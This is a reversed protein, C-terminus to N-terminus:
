TVRGKILNEGGVQTKLFNNFKKNWRDPNNKKSWENFERTKQETLAELEEWPMIYEKDTKRIKISPHKYDTFKDDFWGRSKCQEYLKTGPYPQAIFFAASDFGAKKPFEFTQMMEEKTEGPMGVIFNSHVSIGYKQALTIVPKFIKLDVPKNIIQSLVRQSGSEPSFTLQYCGSEAMLKIMDKNLTSAMVGEPTSWVFDFDEKMVKFLKMARESNVTLNDDVFQLEDVGYDDRLIKLEKIINEVSRFRIRRGWYKSTACFTCSFPCGRSTMIETARRGRTFPNSPRNIRFYEEMNVLHRAPLPITDIDEIYTIAPNIKQRSALGEFNRNGKIFNLTRFEGEKMIVYDIEKCEALTKKPDLSPHIGGTFVIIEKNIEKILKSIKYLEPEYYSCSCTIGVFRPNEKKIRRKLQDDSLGYTVYNGKIETNYYGECQNDLVSVKYGAQELTSAIYLLNLPVVARRVSSKELTNRPNILLIESM